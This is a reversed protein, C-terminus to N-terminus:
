YSCKRTNLIHVSASDESTSSDLSENAGLGGLVFIRSGMAAMAHGSRATPAPGMSQFM